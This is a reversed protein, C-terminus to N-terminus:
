LKSIVAQLQPDPHKANSHDQLGNPTFLRSGGCVSCTLTAPRASKAPKHHCNQKKAAPARVQQREMAVKHALAQQQYTQIENKIVSLLTDYAERELPTALTINVRYSSSFSATNLDVGDQECWEQLQKCREAVQKDHEAAQKRKIRSQRASERARAAREVKKAAEHQEAMEEFSDANHEQQLLPLLHAKWYTTMTFSGKHHAYMNVQRSPLHQFMAADLGSDKKLYFEAITHQILCDKCCRTSFGWYVKCIAKAGCLMCGVFGALRLKDKPKVTM